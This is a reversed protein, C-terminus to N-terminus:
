PMPAWVNRLRLDPHLGCADANSKFYTNHKYKVNKLFPYINYLSYLQNPRFILVDYNQDQSTCPRM